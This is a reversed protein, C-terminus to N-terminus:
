VSLNMEYNLNIIFSVWNGLELGAVERCAIPPDYRARGSTREDGSGRLDHRFEDKKTNENILCVSARSWKPYPLLGVLQHFLM